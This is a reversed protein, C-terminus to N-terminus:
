LHNLFPSRFDIRFSVPLWHLDGVVPTIHERQKTEGTLLASCHDLRSRVFAQILKEADHQTLSPWVKAVNRLQFFATHTVKSM